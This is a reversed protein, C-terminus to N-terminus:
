QEEFSEKDIGLVDEEYLLTYEEGDEEYGFEERFAELLLDLSPEEDDDLELAFDRYLFGVVADLPVL